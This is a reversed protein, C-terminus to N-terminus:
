DSKLPAVRAPRLAACGYRARLKNEYLTGSVANEAETSRLKRLRPQEALKITQRADDADQWVAAPGAAVPAAREHDHERGHEHEAPATPSARSRGRPGAAAEDGAAAAQALAKSPRKDVVFGGQIWLRLIAHARLTLLTLVRPSPLATLVRRRECARVCRWLSTRHQRVRRPGDQRARSDGCVSGKNPRTTMLVRQVARWHQARVDM